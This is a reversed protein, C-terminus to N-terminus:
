DITEDYIKFEKGFLKVKLIPITEKKIKEKREKEKEKELWEFNPTWQYAM